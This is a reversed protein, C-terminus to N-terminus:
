TEEEEFIRYPIYFDTRAGPSNSFSVSAETGYILALSKVVNYIGINSGERCIEPHEEIHNLLELRDAPYGSGSDTHSIHIREKGNEEYIEARIEVKLREGMVMNHKVTNETLMLLLMPFVVANKLSDPVEIRYELCGPYRLATLRLYNETYYLEKELTVREEGSLTYRLHESLTRGMEQLVQWKEPPSGAIAMSIIISLCNILFHPSVQSKLYLLEIRANMLEKEYNEIKLEQIERIYNQFTGSIQVAEECRFYKPHRYEPANGLHAERVMMEISRIPLSFFRRYLVSVLVFILIAMLSIILIRHYIPLMSRSIQELPLFAAMYGDYYEPAVIAVLYKGHQPSRYIQYTGLEQSCSIEVEPFEGTQIMKGEEDAYLVFSGEGFIDEFSVTMTSLSTWAGAVSGGCVMYRVLYAGTGDEHLQWSSYDIAGRFLEERNVRLLSRAYLACNYTNNSGEAYIFQDTYPSYYFIGDMNDFITLSNRLLNQVRVISTYITSSETSSNLLSIDTNFSALDFLYNELGSINEATQRNYLEMTDVTNQYLRSRLTHNLYTIMSMAVGASILIFGLLFFTGIKQISYSFPFIKNLKSVNKEREEAKKLLVGIVNYM